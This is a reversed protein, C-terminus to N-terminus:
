RFHPYDRRGFPASHDRRKHSDIGGVERMRIFFFLVLLYNIKKM